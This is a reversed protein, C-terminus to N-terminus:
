GQLYRPSPRRALLIWLRQSASRKEAAFRETVARRERRQDLGSARL